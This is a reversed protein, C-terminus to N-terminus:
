SFLSSRLPTDWFCLLLCSLQNLSLIRKCWGTISDPNVNRCFQTHILRLSDEEQNQCTRCFIQNCSGDNKLTARFKTMLIQVHKLLTNKNGFQYIAARFFIWHQKETSNEFSSNPLLIQTGSMQWSCAQKCGWHNAVNWIQKVIYSFITASCINSIM